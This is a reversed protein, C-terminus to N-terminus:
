INLAKVNSHVNESFVNLQSLHQRSSITLRTKDCVHDLPKQYLKSLVNRKMSNIKAPIQWATSDPVLKNKTSAHFMLMNKQVRM